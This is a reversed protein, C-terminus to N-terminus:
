RQGSSKEESGLIEEYPSSARSTAQCQVEAEQARAERATGNGMFACGCASRQPSTRATPNHNWWKGFCSHGSLNETTRATAPSTHSHNADLTNHCLLSSQGCEDPNADTGIQM